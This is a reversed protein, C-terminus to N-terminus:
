DGEGGPQSTPAEQLLARLEDATLVPEPGEDDVDPGGHASHHAGQDNLTLEQPLTPYTHTQTAPESPGASIRHLGDDALLGDAGLRMAEALTAQRGEIQTLWIEVHPFRRKVSPIVQLEEKYLSNLSLIVSRYVLPRRCLELLGAYPDDAEACAFGLRQMVALPQVRCAPSGVILTRGLSRNIPFSIGSMLM